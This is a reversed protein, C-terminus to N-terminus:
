RSAQLRWGAQGEFGPVVWPGTSKPNTSFLNTGEIAWGYSAHDYAFGFRHFVSVDSRVVEFRKGNFQRFEGGRPSKAWVLNGEPNFRITPWTEHPLGDKETFLRFRGESWSTLRGNESKIWLRGARDLYLNAIRNEPLEPTNAADFVVFESGNFRALGSFTAVWLYGDPTQALSTIFNDPLGHDTQWFDVIFESRLDKVPATESGVVFEAWACLYVSIIIRWLRRNCCRAVTRLASRNM